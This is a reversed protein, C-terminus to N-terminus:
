PVVVVVLPVAAVQQEQKIAEAQQNAESDQQQL